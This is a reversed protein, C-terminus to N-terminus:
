KDNKITDRIVQIAPETESWSYWSHRFALVAEERTGFSYITPVDYAYLTPNEIGPWFHANSEKVIKYLQLAQRQLEAILEEYNDLAVIDARKLLIDSMAEEQLYDYRAEGTANPKSQLFKQLGELDNMLRIKILTLAVVHSLDYHHPKEIIPEFANQDHLDLFPQSEDHWNYNPDRKVAYWKIFDYAEQDRGLRLYLAPVSSRVGLNDGRCLRLMDLSHHLALEVAEGTRVNLIASIYDFRAQMYPRTSKLAWFRGVQHDFPDKGDTDEGPNARLKAEAEDLKKKQRSIPACQVKHRPRDAKQHQQGCYKVVHCGGCRLLDPNQFSKICSQVSCHQYPLGLNMRPM